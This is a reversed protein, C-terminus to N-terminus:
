DLSPTHTQLLLQLLRAVPFSAAMESGEWDGEGPGTNIGGGRSSVCTASVRGTQGQGWARLPPLGSAAQGPSAVSGARPGPPLLRPPPPAAQRAPSAGTDSRLQM